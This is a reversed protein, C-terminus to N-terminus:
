IPSARIKTVVICCIESQSLFSPMDSYACLNASFSM